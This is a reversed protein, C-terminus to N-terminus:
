IPLLSFGKWHRLHSVKMANDKTETRARPCGWTREHEDECRKRHLFEEHHHGHRSSRTRKQSEFDEKHKRDATPHAYASDLSLQRSTKVEALHRYKYHDADETLRRRKKESAGWDPSSVRRRLPSKRTRERNMSDKGYERSRSTREMSGCYKRHCDRQCEHKEWPEDDPDGHRRESHQRSHDSRHPYM